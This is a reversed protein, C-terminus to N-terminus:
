PTVERKNWGDAVLHRALDAYEYSLADDTASQIAATLAAVAKEDVPPNARLYEALSLLQRAERELVEPVACEHRVTTQEGEEDDPGVILLEDDDPHRRLPELDNRDIVVFAERVRRAALAPSLNVVPYINNKGRIARALKDEHDNDTSM